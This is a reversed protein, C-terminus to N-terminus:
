NVPDWGGPVKKYTKGGVTKTEGGSESYGYLRKKNAMNTKVADRFVGLRARVDDAGGKFVTRWSTPDGIMDDLIQLDPGALVGLEAFAPGKAKIGLQRVLAEMRTKVPGPLVELGHKAVLADLEAIHGHMTAADAIGDRLASVKPPPVKIKPDHTHGPIAQEAETEDAKTAKTDERVGRAEARTAGAAIRAADITTKRGLESDFSNQFDQAAKMTPLGDIIKSQDPYRQRLGEKYAALEAAAGEKGKTEMLLKAVQARRLEAQSKNEDANQQDIGAQRRRMLEDAVQERRSKARARAQPVQAPGAQSVGAQPTQTVGSVFQKAALEIRGNNRANRDAEQAAAMEEADNDVPAASMVAQGVQAPISGPRPQAAETEDLAQQAVAVEHAAPQPLEPPPQAPGELPGTANLDAESLGGYPSTSELPLGQHDLGRRKRVATVLNPNM